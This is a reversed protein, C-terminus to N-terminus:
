PAQWVPPLLVGGHQNVGSVDVPRGTTVARVVAAVVYAVLEPAEQPIQHDDTNAVILPARCLLALQRQYATWLRDAAETFGAPWAGPARNIVVAPITPQWAGVIEIEGNVIDFETAGPGDGDVPVPRGGDFADGFRSRPISGDIHVVGACREPYRSAFARAILSGISHGVLVLRGTVNRSGLEVALEDAFASHPLPPNPAPRPPASGTGPRDYTFTPVESPLRGIVPKWSDGGTGLQSVFVVTPVDDNSMPGAKGFTGATDVGAM